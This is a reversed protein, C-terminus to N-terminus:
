LFTQRESKSFSLSSKAKRSVTAMMPPRPSISGLSHNKRSVPPVAASFGCGFGAGAQSVSLDQPSITRRELTVTKSPRKVSKLALTAAQFRRYSPSAGCLASRGPLHPLM